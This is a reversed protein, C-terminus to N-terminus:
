RSWFAPQGSSEELAPLKESVKQRDWFSPRAVILEFFAKGKENRRTRIQFPLKDSGPLSFEEGGIVPYGIAPDTGPKVSARGDGPFAQDIAKAADPHNTDSRLILADKNNRALHVKYAQMGDGLEIKVSCGYTKDAATQWCVFQMKQGGPGQVSRIEKVLQGDEEVAPTQMADYLAKANAQNKLVVSAREKDVEIDVSANSEKLALAPKPRPAPPNAIPDDGRRDPDSPRASPAPWVPKEPMRFLDSMNRGDLIEPSLQAIAEASCSVTAAPIAAFSGFL